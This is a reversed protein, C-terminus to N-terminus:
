GLIDAPVWSFMNSNIKLFTILRDRDGPSLSSDVYVCKELEAPNLPIAETAEGSQAQQLLAEDRLDLDEDPHDLAVPTVKLHPISTVAGFSTLFPRGLIANYVSSLDVVLFTLERTAACPYTGM